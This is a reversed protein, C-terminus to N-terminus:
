CAFCFLMSLCIHMLVAFLFFASHSNGGGSVYFNGKPSKCLPLECSLISGVSYIALLLPTWLKRRAPSCLCSGSSNETFVTLTQGGVSQMTFNHERPASVTKKELSEIM